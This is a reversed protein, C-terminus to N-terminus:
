TIRKFEMIPDSPLKSTEENCYHCFWKRKSSDPLALRSKTKANQKVCCDLHAAKGCGGQDCVFVEKGHMDLCVYCFTCIGEEDVAVWAAAEDRDPVCETLDIDSNSDDQLEDEEDDDEDNDDDEDYSPDTVKKKEQTKTNGTWAVFNISNLVIESVAEQQKELETM